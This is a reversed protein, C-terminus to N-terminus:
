PGPRTHAMYTCGNNCAWMGQKGYQKVCLQTLHRQRSQADGGRVKVLHPGYKALTDLSSVLQCGNELVYDQATDMELDLETQAYKTLCTPAVMDIYRQREDDRLNMWDTRTPKEKFTGGLPGGTVSWHGFAKANIRQGATEAAKTVVKDVLRCVADLIDRLPKERVGLAKMRSNEQEVSNSTTNYLDFCAPVFCRVWQVYDSENVIYDHLAESSDKIEVLVDDVQGRTECEALNDIMTHWDDGLGALLHPKSRINGKIHQRCSRLHPVDVGDDRELANAKVFMTKCAAKLGGHRDGILTTFPDDLTAWLSDEDISDDDGLDGDTSYNKIDQLMDVYFATNEGWGLHVVVPVIKNDTTTGELIGIRLDGREYQLHAADISYVRPGCKRTAIDAAHFVITLSDFVEHVGNDDAVDHRKIHLTANGNGDIANFKTVWDAIESMAVALGLVDAKCIRRCIRNMARKLTEDPIHLDYGEREFANYVAGGVTCAKQAAAWNGCALVAERIKIDNASALGVTPRSSSSSSCTHSFNCANENVQFSQQSQKKNKQAVIVFPCSKAQCVKVVQLRGKRSQDDKLKKGSDKGFAIIRASMDKYKPSSYSLLQLLPKAFAPDLDVRRKKQVRKHSPSADAGRAMPQFDDDDDAYKTNLKEYEQADFFGDTTSCV